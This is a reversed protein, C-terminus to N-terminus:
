NAHAPDLLRLLRDFPSSTGQPIDGRLAKVWDILPRHQDAHDLAPLAAAIVNAVRERLEDGRAYQYVDILNCVTGFLEEFAGSSSRELFAVAELAAAEAAEPSESGATRLLVATDGALLCLEEGKTQLDGLPFRREFGPVADFTKSINRAAVAVPMDQADKPVSAWMRTARDFACRLWSVPDPIPALWSWAPVVRPVDQASIGANSTDSPGSPIRFDIPM